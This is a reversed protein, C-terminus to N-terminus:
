VAHLTFHFTSGKGPVSEVWIKGKHANVIERSIFLGLGFGKVPREKVQYFRDFILDIKDAPIGEGQDKVYIEVMKKNPRILGIEIVSFIPSYKAANSILNVLVQEIRGPDAVVETKPFKSINIIHRKYIIRMKCVVSKILESLDIAKFNMRLNGTEIRSDDLLDNILLNLKNLEMDILTIDALKIQDKGFKKFKKLHSSSLLKLTTLPTRLEHAATSLFDAKLEELKKRETIDRLSGVMAIPKNRHRIVSVALWIPFTTGSKHKVLLEGNWQGHKRLAPVVIKEDIRPDKMLESVHKGRIEKRTFGHMNEFAKNSYIIHGALDVLQIGDASAEVAEAFLRLREELQKRRTIDRTITSFGITENKGNKIPSITISVEIRKGGKRIRDTEYNYVLQENTLRKFLRVVENRRNPPVIIDISKGIVESAKYGYLKEAAPNWSTIERKLNTGTISDNSSQVLFDLHSQTTSIYKQPPQVDKAKM